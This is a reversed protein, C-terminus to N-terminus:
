CCTLNRRLVDQFTQALLFSFIRNLKVCSQSQIFLFNNSISFHWGFISSWAFVHILHDPRAVGLVSRFLQFLLQLWTDLLFFLWRQSPFPLSKYNWDSLLMPFGVRDRVSPVTGEQGLLKQVCVSPLFGEFPKPGLPSCERQCSLSSVTCFFGWFSKYSNTTHNKADERIDFKCIQIPICIRRGIDTWVCQPQHAAWEFTLCFHHHIMLQRVSPTKVIPNRTGLNGRFFDIRRSLPFNPDFGVTTNELPVRCWKLFDPCFCNTWRLSNNLLTLRLFAIRTRWFKLFSCVIFGQLLFSADASFCPVQCFTDILEFVLVLGREVKRGFCPCGEEFFGSSRSNTTSEPADTCM